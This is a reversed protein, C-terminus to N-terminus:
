SVLFTLPREQQRAQLRQILSESNLEFTAERMPNYRTEGDPFCRYAPLKIGGKNKIVESSIRFVQTHDRPQSSGRTFPVAVWELITAQLIELATYDMPACLRAPSLSM